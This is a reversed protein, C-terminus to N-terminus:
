SIVNLLAPMEANASQGQNTVYIGHAGLAAGNGVSISIYLATYGTSPLSNGPVAYAIGNQVSCVKALINPDDFTVSPFTTPDNPNATCTACTLVMDVGQSGLQITPPIFTSNSLLSIPNNSPNPVMTPYVLNFYNENFLQLPQAYSVAPSGVADYGNPKTGAFASAVIQMKFTNTVQSGFTISDGGITLDGVVYNKTPPVEFVAHLIFNGPMAVGGQTSLTESGRLITWFTSCDTGDPSAYNSFDPMQIYLGPPDALTVVFGSNVLSNVNGGINPDSNRNMQGYQADCLLQNYYKSQWVTNGTTGSPNNRLVSAGSALGIETQITNPTSTLHIAGGGTPTVEPGSNWINLPNYVPNGTVPDTIGPLSLDALTINPNNLISQYLSLVTNPDILWLSNWYEPNECTFDIRTIYGAANRTVAWECYEDQWGRPGYPFYPVNSGSATDCPSNNINAVMQGTDAMQFWQSQNNPYNFQIRGPFAPWQINKVSSPTSNTLPNYYNTTAPTNSANWPNGMMGQQIFGNLNNNWLTDLNQQNTPDNPFDQIGAPTRFAFQSM